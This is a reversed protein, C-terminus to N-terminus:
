SRDIRHKIWFKDTNENIYAQYFKPEPSEPDEYLNFEACSASSEQDMSLVAVLFASVSNPLIVLTSKVESPDLTGKALYKGNQILTNLQSENQAAYFEYLKMKGQNGSQRPMLSFAKFTTRRNLNITFKFPGKKNTRDDHRGNGNDDVKTLWIKSPDGTLINSIPGENVQDTTQESDATAM